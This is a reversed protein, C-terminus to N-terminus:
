FGRLRIAQDVRNVALEYAASRLDINYKTALAQVEDYSHSLRTELRSLLLESDWPFQQLNQVWEYYSALVGGVNALLDPIIVVGRKQLREDARHTLPINAAEVILKAQIADANDCTITAELAAPILMECPLELLGANDIASTGVLGMLGGTERVHAIALGIDIGNEAFVGGRSGSLAIIKYRKNALKVATHSGVNGFGQVVVRTKEPIMSMQRAAKDALYAVGHGTAELRGACGGLEMPKGTVIPTRFGHTKSYEDLMWGMVQPNTGIDPAPIDEHVGIIPAMKQIFRKSLEELETQSLKKPDVAIGGKAGGFPIDVLATKWTMLQALARVEGKNVDPHFRLGGKFPGRAHNHQVRYGQFTHLTDEGNQHLMVPITVQMERFSSLLLDRQAKKLNLRDFALALFHLQTAQCICRKGLEAEEEIFSQSNNNILIM